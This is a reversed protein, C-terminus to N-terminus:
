RHARPAAQNGGGGGQSGGISQSLPSPAGGSGPSGRLRRVVHEARTPAPPSPVASRAPPAPPAAAPPTPTTPRPTPPASSPSPTAPSADSCDRPPPHSPPNPASRGPPHRAVAPAQESPPGPSPTLDSSRRRLPPPATAGKLDHVSGPGLPPHGPLDGRSRSRSGPGPQRCTPSRHRTTFSRTAQRRTRGGGQSVVGTNQMFAKNVIGDIQAQRGAADDTDSNLMDDIQDQADDSISIIENKAAVVTNYANSYFDIATTLHKDMSELQRIHSEVQGRQLIRRVALGRATTSSLPRRVTGPTSCEKGRDSGSSYRAGRGSSIRM